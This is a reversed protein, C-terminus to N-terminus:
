PLSLSMACGKLAAVVEEKTRGPEDNWSYIVSKAGVYEKMAQCCIGFANTRHKNLAFDARDIVDVLCVGNSNGMLNPFGQRWQSRELIDAAELLTEKTSSM